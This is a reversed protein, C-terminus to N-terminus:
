IAAAVPAKNHFASAFEVDTLERYFALRVSRDSSRLVRAAAFFAGRKLIADCNSPVPSPAWIQAGVVSIDRIRVAVAGEPTMLTGTMLVRSRSVARGPKVAASAM